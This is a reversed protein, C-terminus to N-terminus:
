ARPISAGGTSCYPNTCALLRAAFYGRWPAALVAVRLVIRGACIVTSWLFSAFDVPSKVQTPGALASICPHCSDAALCNCYRHITSADPRSEGHSEKQTHRR